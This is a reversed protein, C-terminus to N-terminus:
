KKGGFVVALLLGCLVITIAIGGYGDVSPISGYIDTMAEGGSSRLSNRLLYISATLSCCVCLSLMIIAQKRHKVITDDMEKLRCLFPQLQLRKM